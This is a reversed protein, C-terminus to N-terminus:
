SQLYETDRKQKLICAEAVTLGILEEELFTLEDDYWAFVFDKKGSEMTAIAMKNGYRHNSPQFDVSKIRDVGPEGLEEGDGVSCVVVREGTEPITRVWFGTLTKVKLDGERAIVDTLFSVVESAKM